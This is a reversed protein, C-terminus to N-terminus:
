EQEIRMEIDVLEGDREVVLSLSSGQLVSQREKGDLEEIARGDIMVIVDGEQLGANEAVSGPQVLGVVMAAGGPALGFGYRPRGFARATPVNGQGTQLARIRTNSQDIELTANLFAGTGINGWSFRETFNLLPNDLRLLNLQASGDLMAEYINFVSSVTRGQGLLEPESELTLDAASELPLMFVGPSGTDIHSMITEGDVDLELYIHGGREPTYAMSGDGEELSGKALRFREEPFDMAILWQNFVGLGIVGDQGTGGFSPIEIAELGSFSVGGLEISDVTFTKAEVGEPNSPDGVRITGTPELGLKEIVHPRLVSIGAGTDFVFEFPGQGNIMAEIVPRGSDLEMHVDVEYDRPQRVIQRREQGLVESGGSAMLLCIGM